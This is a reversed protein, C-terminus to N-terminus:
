WKWLKIKFEGMEFILGFTTGGVILEMWLSNM